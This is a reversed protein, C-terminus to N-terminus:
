PDPFFRKKLEQAADMANVGAAQDGPLVVAGFLHEQELWKGIDALKSRDGLEVMLKVIEPKYVPHRNEYMRHLEALVEKEEGDQALSRLIDLTPHLEAGMQVALWKQERLPKGQAKKYWGRMFNIYKRRIEPLEQSLQPFESTPQYFKAPLLKDLIQVAVDQNRLVVRRKEDSRAFAVSRTPRRDDLMELLAPVADRGMRSFPIAANYSGEVTAIPALVNCYNPVPATNCRLDRLHYTYYTIREQVSREESDPEKWKEDEKQMKDLLNILEAAGAAYDADPHEQQYKQLLEAVEKREAGKELKELARLYQDLGAERRKQPVRHRRLLAKYEEPTVSKKFDLWAQKEFGYDRGTLDRLYRAGSHGRRELSAVLADFGQDDGQAACLYQLAIIVHPDREVKLRAKAARVISEHQRRALTEAARSRTDAEEDNLLAVLGSTEDAPDQQASTRCSWSDAGTTLLLLLASYRM